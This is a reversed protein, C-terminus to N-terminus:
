SPTVAVLAAAWRPAVRSRWLAAGLLLMGVVHAVLFVILLVTFTADDRVATLLQVAGARDPSRAAHYSVLDLSGIGLLGALWGTFALVGGAVALRPAARRTLRMLYLMAPLMLAAVIDVVILARQDGQHAAVKELAVRASDDDGQAELFTGVTLAVGAVVLSAAGFWRSVTRVDM